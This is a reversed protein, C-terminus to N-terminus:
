FPKRCNSMKDGPISRLYLVMFLGVEIKNSLIFLIRVAQALHQPARDIKKDKQMRAVSSTASRASHWPIREGGRLWELKQWPYRTKRGRMNFRSWLIDQNQIKLLWHTLLIEQNAINVDFQIFHALAHQDMVIVSCICHRKEIWM